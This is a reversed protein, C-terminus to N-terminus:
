TQQLTLSHAAKTKVDKQQQNIFPKTRRKRYGRDETSAELIVRELRAAAIKLLAHFIVM